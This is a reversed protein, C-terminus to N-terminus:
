LKAASGLTWQVNLGVGTGAAEEQMAPLIEGLMLDHIVDERLARDNLESLYEAQNAPVLLTALIDDNPLEHTQLVMKARGTFHAALAGAVDEVTSPQPLVRRDARAQAEGAAAAEMGARAQRIALRLRPALTPAGDRDSRPGGRSGEGALLELWRKRLRRNADHFLVAYRGPPGLDPSSWALRGGRTTVRALESAARPLAEPPILHFVMASMVADMSRGGTIELLPRFRGDAGRLSHFRTWTCNRLLEFGQAFWSSPLDVLHLELTAGLRELRQEIGRQHCAKLFEIAALGTGAGYDLVRIVDGRRADALREDVVELASAVVFGTPASCWARPYRLDGGVYLLEHLARGDELDTDHDPRWTDERAGGGDFTPVAAEPEPVVLRNLSVAVFPRSAPYRREYHSTPALGALRCCCLFASHEIPYQHSYGHYADFAVSHTAGLHKRAIRPAVSHAELMVMGHKRVMPAWRRLHDVLDREVSAADIPEGRDGVYAGSSWGPVATQPDAGVYARNHDIFARVHLGDDLELGHEALTLRVQDPKSIDGSVVLAPVDAADLVRRAEELAVANCDVGVMLLPDSRTRRGRLTRTMILRHLHVLWSGDGCGTDAVFRPQADVPERDFLELFIADADAFYRQHASASARVNLQRHVHWEDSPSSPRVTCHGRYLDPLRALLPLYSAAMGFHVAFAAARRGSETWTGSAQDIWSVAALLQRIGQELESEALRPRNFLLRDTARLWLMAPVVLAADLHTTILERLKLLLGSELRWRECALPLLDLFSKTRAAGWPRSWTDPDNGSFGALLRGAAIYHGWYPAASRGTDTWRLITTEPDLTPEDDLWGQSALSRLGVRLYGFGSPTVNPYLNALTRERDLSPGLVDIEALARLTACLVVGDQHVFVTWRPSGVAAQSQDKQGTSIAASQRM